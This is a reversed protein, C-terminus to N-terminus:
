NLVPRDWLWIPVVSKEHSLHLRMRSAGELYPIEDLSDALRTIPRAINAYSRGPHARTTTQTDSGDRTALRSSLNSNFQANQERPERTIPAFM